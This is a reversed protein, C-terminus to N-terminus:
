PRRLWCGGFASRSSIRGRTPTWPASPITLSSSTPTTTGNRQPVGQGEEAKKAMAEDDLPRGGGNDSM